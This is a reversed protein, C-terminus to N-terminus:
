TRLVWPLRCFICTKSKKHSIKDKKITVGISSHTIDQSQILNNKVKETLEGDQSTPKVIGVASITAPMMVKLVVTLTGAIHGCQLSVSEKSVTCSFFNKFFIGM